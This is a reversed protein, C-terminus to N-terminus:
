CNLRGPHARQRRYAHRRHWTVHLPVCRTDVVAGGFERHGRWECLHLRICVVRFSVWSGRRFERTQMIIVHFDLSGESITVMKMITMEVMVVMMMEVMVVLMMMMNSSMM